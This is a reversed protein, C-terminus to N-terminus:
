YNNTEKYLTCIAYYLQQICIELFMNCYNFLYMYKIGLLVIDVNIKLICFLVISLVLRYQILHKIVLCTLATVIYKNLNDRFMMGYNM